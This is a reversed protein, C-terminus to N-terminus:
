KDYGIISTNVEDIIDPDIQSIELRYVTDARYNYIGLYKVSEFQEKKSHMGMLYEILLELTLKQSSKTNGKTISWITDESLYECKGHHIIRASNNYLDIDSAVFSKYIDFLRLVRKVMTKVNAITSGPIKNTLKQELQHQMALEIEDTGNALKIYKDAYNIYKILRIVNAVSNDDLGPHIHAILNNVTDTQDILTANSLAHVAIDIISYEPELKSLEIKALCNVAIDFTNPGLTESKFNYSDSNLSTQKFDALKIFGNTPQHVMSARGKICTNIRYQEDSIYLDPDDYGIVQDTVTDIIEPNINDILIQYMKYTNFDYVSLYELKEFDNKNRSHLGMVYYILLKLVVKEDFPEESSNITIYLSNNTLYRAPDYDDTPIFKTFNDTSKAFIKSIPGLANIFNQITDITTRNFQTTKLKAMTDEPNDRLAQQMTALKLANTVSEDSAGQYINSALDIMYERIPNGKAQERQYNISKIHEKPNQLDESLLYWLAQEIVHTSANLDERKYNSLLKYETCQFQQPKLCKDDPLKAIKVYEKVPYGLYNAKCRKEKNDIDKNIMKCRGKM